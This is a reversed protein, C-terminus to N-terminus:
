RETTVVVKLKMARGGPRTKIQFSERWLGNWISEM